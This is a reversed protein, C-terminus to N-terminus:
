ELHLSIAAFLIMANSSNKFGVPGFMIAPVSSLCIDPMADVVM